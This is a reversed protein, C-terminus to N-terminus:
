QKAPEAQALLGASEMAGAYTDCLQRFKCQGACPKPFVIMNFGKTYRPLFSRFVERIRRRLRNRFVATGLKKKTIVGLRQLAGPGALIVLDFFDTKRRLGKEL